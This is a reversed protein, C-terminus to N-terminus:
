DDFWGRALEVKATRWLMFCSTAVLVFFLWMLVPADPYRQAIIGQFTTQMLVLNTLPHREFFSM